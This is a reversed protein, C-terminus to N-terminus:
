EVNIADGFLLEIQEVSYVKSGGSPDQTLVLVNEGAVLLGSELKVTVTATMGDGTVPLRLPTGNMTATAERLYDIDPARARLAVVKTQPVATLRFSLTKPGDGTVRVAGANVPTRHSIVEPAGRDVGAFADLWDPRLSLLPQLEPGLWVTVDDLAFGPKGPDLVDLRWPQPDAAEAREVRVATVADFDSEEEAAVRGAPDTIRVTAAEGKVKEHVWISFSAVAAAPTFFFTAPSGSIHVPAERRAVLAWPRGEVSVQALNSGSHVCVAHLGATAARFRVSGTSGLDLEDRLVERSEPDLVVVAPRDTHVYKAKAVSRVTATVAEGDAARFVAFCDYRLLPDGAAPVCATFVIAWVRTANVTM